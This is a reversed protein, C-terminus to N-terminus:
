TTNIRSVIVNKFSGPQLIRIHITPKETRVVSNVFKFSVLEVSENSVLWVYSLDMDHRRLIEIPQDVVHTSSASNSQVYRAIHAKKEILFAM